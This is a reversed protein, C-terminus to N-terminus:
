LVRQLNALSLALRNEQFVHKGVKVALVTHTEHIANSTLKLVADVNPDALLHEPGTRVNATEQRAQCFDVTKQSADYIVTVIYFHDLYTAVRETSSKFTNIPRSTLVLLVLVLRLARRADAPHLRFAPVLKAYACPKLISQISCGACVGILYRRHIDTKIM